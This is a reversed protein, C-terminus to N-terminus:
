SLYFTVNIALLYENVLGKSYKALILENNSSNIINQALNHEYNYNQGSM